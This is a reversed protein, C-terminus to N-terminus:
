AILKIDQAVQSYLYTDETSYLSPSPAPHPPATESHSPHAMHNKAGAVLALFVYILLNIKPRPPYNLYKSYRITFLRVPRLIRLM